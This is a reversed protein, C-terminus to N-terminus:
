QINIKKIYITAGSNDCKQVSIVYSFNDGNNFTGVSGTFYKVTQSNVTWCDGEKFLFDNSAYVGDMECLKNNKGVITILRNQQYKQDQILTRSPSEIQIHFLLM